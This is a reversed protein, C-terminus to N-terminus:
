LRVIEMGVANAFHSFEEKEADTSPYQNSNTLTQVFETPIWLSQRLGSEHYEIYTFGGDATKISDLAVESGDPFVGIYKNTM